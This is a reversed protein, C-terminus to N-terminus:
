RKVEALIMYIERRRMGESGQFRRVLGKTSGHNVGSMFFRGQAILIM